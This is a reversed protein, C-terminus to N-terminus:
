KRPVKFYEGFNKLKKDKESIIIEDKELGWNINLKPDNYIIGKESERNYINDVKYFFDAENSIVSFGHAFNRPVFLCKRNESSLEVSVYQGFTTSEPRLDVAVDIVKGKLVRVLKAQAFEGSQWHLGRITGKKSNSQNDQIFQVEYGLVKNLENQNYTISFYGREDEFFDPEIIFCGALKTEKFKM